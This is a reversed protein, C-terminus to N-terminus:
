ESWKCTVVASVEYAVDGDNIVIVLRGQKNVKKAKQCLDKLLASTVRFSKQTKPVTKYIVCDILVHPMVGRILEKAM